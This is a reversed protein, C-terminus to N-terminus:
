VTEKPPTPSAALMAQWRRGAAGKSRADVKWYAKLMEPTLKEPVLKWGEQVQLSAASLAAALAARMGDKSDNRTKESLFVWGSGIWAELAREVMEDTIEGSPRPRTHLAKLIEATATCTCSDARRVKCIDGACLVGEEHLSILEAVTNDTQTTMPPEKTRRDTADDAMDRIMDATYTRPM